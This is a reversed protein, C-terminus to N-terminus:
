YEPKMLKVNIWLPGKNFFLLIKAGTHGHHSAQDQGDKPMMTQPAPTGAQSRANATRDQFDFSPVISKNWQEVFLPTTM